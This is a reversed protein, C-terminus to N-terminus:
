VGSLFKLFEERAEIDLNVFTQVEMRMLYRRELEIKLYYFDPIKLM